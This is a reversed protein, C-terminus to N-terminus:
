LAVYSITGSTRTVRLNLLGILIRYRFMYTFSGLLDHMMLMHVLYGGAFVCSQMM